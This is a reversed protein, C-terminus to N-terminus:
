ARWSSHSHRHRRDRGIRADTFDASIWLDGEPLGTNAVPKIWLKTPQFVLYANGSQGRAVLPFSSGAM